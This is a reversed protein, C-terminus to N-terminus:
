LQLSHHKKLLVEPNPYNERVDDMRIYKNNWSMQKTVTQQLRDHSSTFKLFCFVYKGDYDPTKWKPIEKLTVRLLDLHTNM